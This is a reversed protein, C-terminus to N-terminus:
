QAYHQPSLLRTSTGKVHLSNPIIIEVTRGVDDLIVWRLTGKGTIKVKTGGYASVTTNTNVPMITGQLFDSETESMSYSCGTDVKIEVM